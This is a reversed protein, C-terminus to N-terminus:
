KRVCAVRVVSLEIPAHDSSAAASTIGHAQLFARITEVPVLTAGQAGGGAVASPKFDVM